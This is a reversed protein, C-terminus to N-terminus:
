MKRLTGLATGPILLLTTIVTSQCSVGNAGTLHLARLENAIAIDSDEELTHPNCCSLEGIWKSSYEIVSSIGIIISLTINGIWNLCQGLLTL